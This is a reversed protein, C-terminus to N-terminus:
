GVSPRRWAAIWDAIDQNGVIPAQCRFGECVFLTPRGDVAEKGAFLPNLLLRHQDTMTANRSALVRRPMFVEHLMKLVAAADCDDADNAADVNAPTDDAGKPKTGNTNAVHVLALECTPGLLLGAAILMQGTAEPAAQMTPVAAQLTRTASDIWDTNGTLKGMRLLATAAMANSSPVSGDHWQKTRTVLEEHDDATYFFGGHQDDQFHQLMASCLTAAHDIWQEDFDAEYVTVLANALYAYDDLYADLKAQGARWCHLLRGDERRLTTVLFQAARQAAALYDPRQLVGAARAMTQIALANWSVLVKDDKGPRVRQERDELLQRRADCLLDALQEPTMEWTEALQATPQPLHLISKGEFNGQRTVGYAECFRNGSAEGLVAIIEDVTWVYYKGEGGESDADESSHFGHQPDIMDRLVYDLTETAIRAYEMRGTAQYADLYADALLANDYLMKEFHPVLWVDDVSYRAFGGGLHDYMGGAAMKDLTLCVMRLVAPDRDRQWIRLLLQLEIPRPFKPARGFGGHVPDFATDLRKAANALLDLSVDGSTESDHQAGRVAATLKAAQETTQKRRHNWADTVANLVDDFGPMGMKASPPWYTGGYFPQLDPTLFMSLPWGGHGSIMQVAQMYVHDLDPREERDVKICVFNANLMAAISADEFSEHAMVHCWHCASYGISLFVPKDEAQARQLAEQCWPYWDVPNDQHQLLYPSSEQALRNM